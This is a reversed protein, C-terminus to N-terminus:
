FSDSQDGNQIVERMFWVTLCRSQLWKRPIMRAFSLFTLALNLLQWSLRGFLALIDCDKTDPQQWLSNGCFEFLQRSAQNHWILGALFRM